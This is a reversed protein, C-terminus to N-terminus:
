LTTHIINVSSLAVVICHASDKEIKRVEKMQNSRMYNENGTAATAGSRGLCLVEFDSPLLKALKAGWKRKSDAGCCTNSDGIIVVLKKM